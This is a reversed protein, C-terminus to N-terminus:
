RDPLSALWGPPDTIALERTTDDSLDADEHLVGSAILRQAVVTKGVTRAGELVVVPTITPSM